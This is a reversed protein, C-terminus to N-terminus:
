LPANGGRYSTKREYKPCNVGEPPQGSRVKGCAHNTDEEIRKSLYQDDLVNIVSRRAPPQRAAIHIAPFGRVFRNGAFHAFFEFERDLNARYNGHLADIAIVEINSKQTSGFTGDTMEAGFQEIIAPNRGILQGFNSLKM